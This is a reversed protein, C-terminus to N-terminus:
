HGNTCVGAPAESLWIHGNITTNAPFTGLTVMQSRRIGVQFLFGPPVYGNWQGMEVDAAAGNEQFRTQPFVWPYFTYGTKIAWNVSIVRVAQTVDTISQIWGEIYVIQGDDTTAGAADYTLDLEIGRIWHERAQYTEAFRDPNALSNAGGLEGFASYLKGQLGVLNGNVLDAISHVEPPSFSKGGICIIPLLEDTHLLAPFNKQDQVGLYEAVAKGIALNNYKSPM